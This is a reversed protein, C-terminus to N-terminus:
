IFKWVNPRKYNCKFSMIKVHGHGHRGTLEGKSVEIRLWVFSPVNNEKGKRETRVVWNYIKNSVVSATKCIAYCKLLEQRTMQTKKHCHDVLM